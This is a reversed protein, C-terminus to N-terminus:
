CTKLLNTIHKKIKHFIKHHKVTSNNRQLNNKKEKKKAHGFFFCVRRGTLSGFTTLCSLVYNCFTRKACPQRSNCLNRGFSRKAQSKKPNINKVKISAFCPKKREIRRGKHLAPSRAVLKITM